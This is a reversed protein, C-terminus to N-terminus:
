PSEGPTLSAVSRRRPDLDNIRPTIDGSKGLDGHRTFKNQQERYDRELEM